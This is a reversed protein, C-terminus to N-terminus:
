TPSCPLHCGLARVSCSLVSSGASWTGLGGFQWRPRRGNGRGWQPFTGTTLPRSPRQHWSGVCAGSCFVSQAPEECTQASFSGRPAAIQEQFRAVSRGCVLCSRRSGVGRHVHTHVCVVAHQSQAHIHTCQGHVTVHSCTVACVRTHLCMHGHHPCTLVRLCMTTVHPGTHACAPM